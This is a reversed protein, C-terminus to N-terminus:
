PGLPCRLRALSVFRAPDTIQELGFPGSHHIGAETVIFDMAIDHPQPRITAIRSLECGVAIKLPQPSM